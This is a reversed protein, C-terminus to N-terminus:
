NGIALFYFSQYGAQNGSPIATFGTTSVTGDKVSVEFSSTPTGSSKSIMTLSVNFCANTFNIGSVSSFNVVAPALSINVIGWIMVFGGPLFTYGNNAAVPSINRTLPILRAGGSIWYLSEDGTYGDNVQCSFLQGYGPTASPVGQPKATSRVYNNPPNTVTTSFPNLHINTHYGNPPIGGTNSFPVHDVGFQTDLEQFNTQLNQYDVNLNVTGTPVGPQYPM